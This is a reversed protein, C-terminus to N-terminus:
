FLVEELNNKQSRVYLWVCAWGQEFCHTLRRSQSMLELCPIPVITYSLSLVEQVKAYISDLANDVMIRKTRSM